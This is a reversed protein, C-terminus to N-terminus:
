AIDSNQASLPHMRPYADEQSKAWFPLEDSDSDATPEREVFAEAPSASSAAGRGEAREPSISVRATAFPPLEHQSPQLATYTSEVPALQSTTSPLENQTLQSATAGPKNQAPSAPSLAAFYTTDAAISHM